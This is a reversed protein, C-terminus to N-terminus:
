VKLNQGPHFAPDCNRGWSLLHTCVSFESHRITTSFKCSVLNERSLVPSNWFHFFGYDWLKVSSSSLKMFSVVTEYSSSLVLSNRWHFWPRLVRRFYQLTEDISGHDWLGISTSSLKMFSLFWPRMVWPRLQVEMHKLVLFMITPCIRCHSNLRWQFLHALSVLCGHKATMPPPQLGDMHLHLVLSFWWM